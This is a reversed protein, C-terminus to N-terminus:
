PGASTCALATCLHFIDCTRDSTAAPGPALGDMQEGDVRRTAKASYRTLEDTLDYDLETRATETASDRQPPVQM